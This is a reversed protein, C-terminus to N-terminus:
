GDTGGFVAWVDATTTAKRLAETVIAVADPPIAESTFPVAASGNRKLARISKQRWRRLDEAAKEVSDSDQQMPGEILEHYKDPVNRAILAPVKDKGAKQAGLTRHYGDAVDLKGDPAPTEFEVLITRDMSAGAAISDAIAAVKEPDRGGPRRAFNIQDLPVAPDDEWGIAPDLAWKCVDAPYSRLLYRHAFQALDGKIDVKGAGLAKAVGAETNVGPQASPTPATTPPEPVAPVGALIQKIPVVAGSQTVIIPGLGPPDQQLVNEAIWDTTTAGMSWYEHLTQAELLRDKPEVLSPYSLMLDSSWGATLIRNMVRIVHKSLSIQRTRGSETQEEAVGKGGLGAGGSSRIFGMEMPSVGFIAFGVHLLYEEVDNKPEPVMRDFGSGSGGPIPIFKSREADNGRLLEGVSEVYSRAQEVTWTEPVRLFGAPITGETYWALDLSQRRLARNASLLIAELPPHGYPPRGRMWRPQYIIEDSGYWGWNMGKIVQAYGPAAGCVQCAMGAPVGFSQSAYGNQTWVHQHRPTGPPVQAIRGWLDLIPKVTQGDFVEAAALGGSRNGRLYVAWCDGKFLDDLGRNLWIPYDTQGDPQYLFGMADSITDRLSDARFQAQKQSMGPLPRPIVLPEIKVFEEKRKEIAIGAVDWSEALGYLMNFTYLEATRPTITVNIGPMYDLWRPHQEESHAPGVPVGPGLSSTVSLGQGLAQALGSLDRQAVAGAPLAAKELLTRESPAATRVRTTKM